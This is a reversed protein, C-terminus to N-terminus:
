PELNRFLSSTITKIMTFNMTLTCFDYKKYKIICYHLLKTFLQGNQAPKTLEGQPHNICCRFM